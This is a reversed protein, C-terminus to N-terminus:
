VEKANGNAALADPLSCVSYLQISPTVQLIQAELNRSRLCLEPNRYVLSYHLASYGLVLADEVM